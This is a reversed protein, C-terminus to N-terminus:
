KLVKSLQLAEIFGRKYAEIEINREHQADEDYYLSDDCGDSNAEIALTDLEEQLHTILNRRELVGNNNKLMGIIIGMKKESQELDDNIM